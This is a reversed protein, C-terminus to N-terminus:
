ERVTGYAIWEQGHGSQRPQTMAITTGFAAELRAIQTDLDAKTVGILRISIAHEILGCEALFHRVDPNSIDPQATATHHRM